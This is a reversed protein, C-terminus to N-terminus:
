PQEPDSAGRPGSAPTGSVMRAPDGPVSCGAGLVKAGGGRGQRICCREAVCVAPHRGTPRGGECSFSRNSAHTRGEKDSRRGLPVALESTYLLPHRGVPLSSLGSAAPASHRQTLSSAFQRERGKLERDARCDTVKSGDPESGMFHACPGRAQRCWREAHTEAQGM